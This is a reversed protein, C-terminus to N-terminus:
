RRNRKRFDSPTMNEVKKFTKLFSATEAYGTQEAIERVSLATESLLQKAKEMRKSIVYQIPSVGGYEKFLHTLYYRSIYVSRCIDEISEIKEYNEDIFKRAHRYSDNTSFNEEDKQALLRLALDLIIKVLAASIEDYYYPKQQVERVLDAFYKEFEGRLEGTSLIPTGEGLITNEARDKLKLRDIGCFYLALEEGEASAESHLFNAGYLLLDGARICCEGQATRLVGAGAKVYVLECFAHSHLEEKWNGTKKLEGAYLLNVKNFGASKKNVTYHKRVETNQLHIEKMGKNYCVARAFDIKKRFLKSKQQVKEALTEM